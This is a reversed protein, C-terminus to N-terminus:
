KAISLKGVEVSNGDPLQEVKSGTLPSASLRQGTSPDYLGVVVSVVGPDADSPLRVLRDERVLEGPWWAATRGAGNTPYGDSQAVRRGGADVIHMFVKLNESPPSAVDWLLSVPIDDGPRGVAPVYAAVLQLKGGQSVRIPTWQESRGVPHMQPGLVLLVGAVAAVGAALPVFVAVMRAVARLGRRARAVQGAVLLALGVITATTAALGLLRVRTTGFWVVIEHEGTPVQVTALGMPGAPAVPVDAGDVRARWGPFYLAHLSMPGAAESRVRGALATRGWLDITVERWPLPARDGWEASSRHDLVLLPDVTTWVPTFEGTWTTGPSRLDREYAHLGPVDLPAPQPSPEPNLRALGSALALAVTCGAAMRRVTVSPLAALTGAVITTTGVAALGLLRYPAQILQLWGLVPALGSYMGALALMLVVGGCGAALAIERRPRVAMVVGLGVASLLLMAFGPPVPIWPNGTDPYYYYVLSVPSLLAAVSGLSGIYDGFYLRHPQLYRVDYLAPITFWATLGLSGIGACGIWLGVRLSRTCSILAVGAVIVLPVLLMASVNHTLAVLGITGAAVTARTASPARALRILAWVTWPFLGLALAEPIDGRVYVTVLRYPFVTYVTAAAVSASAPAVLRAAAYTGASALVFSMAAVVEIAGLHSFGVARASLAVFYSLPAYFDFLPYGYGYLLDPVLRPYTPNSALARELALVRYAHGQADLTRWLTAGPLRSAAAFAIGLVVLWPGVAQLRSSASNVAASSRM